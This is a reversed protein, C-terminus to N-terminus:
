SAELLARTAQDRSNENIGYEDNWHVAEINHQRCVDLLTQAAQEWTDIRRVLLPINLGELSQRLDRLNRLWFDVKCAADDHAQWQGPSALWL